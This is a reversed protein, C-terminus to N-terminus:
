SRTASAGRRTPECARMSREAIKRPVPPETGEARREVALTISTAPRCAASTRSRRLSAAGAAASARAQGLDVLDVEGVEVGVVDEAQRPQELGIVQGGALLRQRDVPRAAQVVEELRQAPQDAAGVVVEVQDFHVGAVRDAVVAGLHLGERDLVAHAGVAVRQDLLLARAAEVGLRGLAEPDGFAGGEGGQLPALLDLALSPGTRGSSTIPSDRGPRVTAIVPSM